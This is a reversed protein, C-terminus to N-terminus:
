NLTATGVPRAKGKEKERLSGHRTGGKRGDRKGRTQQEARQQEAGEHEAPRRAGLGILNLNLAGGVPNRMNLRGVEAADAVAHAVAVRLVVETQEGVLDHGHAALAGLKQPGLALRHHAKLRYVVEVAVHKELGDDLRAAQLRAVAVLRLNERQHAAVHRADVAVQAVRRRLLPGRGAPVGVPHPGQGFEVHHAEPFLLGNLRAGPGHHAGNGAGPRRLRPGARRRRTRVEGGEVPLVAEVVQGDAAVAPGEPALRRRVSAAQQEAVRMKGPFRRVAKVLQVEGQRALEVHHAGAQAPHRDDVDAEILVHGPRVGHGGVLAKGERRERQHGTVRQAIDLVALLASQLAAGSDDLDLRGVTRAQV